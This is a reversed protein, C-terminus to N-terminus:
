QNLQVAEDILRMVRNLTSLVCVCVHVFRHTHTHTLACAATRKAQTINYKNDSLSRPFADTSLIMGYRNFPMELELALRLRIKWLNM